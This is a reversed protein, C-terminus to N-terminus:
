LNLCDDGDKMEKHEEFEIENKKNTKKFLSGIGSGIKNKM